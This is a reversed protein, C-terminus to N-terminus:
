YIANISSTDISGNKLELVKEMKEWIIKDHTCIILGLNWKHVGQILFNIVLNANHRDLNGTPEDALIFHPKNILARIISVRQQEGGSLTTPYSNKKHELNFNKLLELAEQEAKKTAEGQITKMLTINELVTLEKILYHFQFVFGISKNLKTEKKQPCTIITNGLYVKGKTPTDLGGTIHLLTSKGSGSAGIIAYTKKKEFSISIDDLVTTKKGFKKTVNQVLLKCDSNM